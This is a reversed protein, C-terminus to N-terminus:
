DLGIRGIVFFIYLPTRLISSLSIAAFLRLFGLAAVRLWFLSKVSPPHSPLPIVPLPINPLPILFLGHRSNNRQRVNGQRNRRLVDLGSFATTMPIITLPIITGLRRGLGRVIMGM